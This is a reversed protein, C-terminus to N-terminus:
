IRNMRWIIPEGDRVVVYDMTAGGTCTLYEPYPLLHEVGTFITNLTETVDVRIGFVDVVGNATGPVIAATAAIVDYSNGRVQSPQLGLHGAIAAHITTEANPTTTTVTFDVTYDGNGALSFGIYHQGIDTQAAVAPDLGPTLLNLEPVDVVVWDGALCNPVLAMGQLPNNAGACQEPTAATLRILGEGGFPTAVSRSVAVVYDQAYPPCIPVAVGAQLPVAGGGLLLSARLGANELNIGEFFVGGGPGTPPLNRFLYYDISFPDTNIDTESPVGPLVLNHASEALTPAHAVTRRGIAVEYNNFLVDLDGVASRLYDEYIITSTATPMARLFEIAAQVSGLGTPSALFEWFFAAEYSRAFLYEHHTHLTVYEKFGRVSSVPTEPYALLAMWEASGEVWWREHPVSINSSSPIYYDQYCHAIEHAMVYLLDPTVFQNYITVRCVQQATAIAGAPLEAPNVMLADAATNPPAEFTLLVYFQFPIAASKIAGGAGGWLTQFVSFVHEVAELVPQVAFERENAYNLVHTRGGAEFTTLTFDQGAAPPAAGFAGLILAGLACALRNATM